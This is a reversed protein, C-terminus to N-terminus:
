ALPEGDKHLNIEDSSVRIPRVSRGHPDIGGVTEWATPTVLQRRKGESIFYVKGSSVDHLLSGNRFLLKGKIPFNLCAAESSRVIRPPAWSDVVAKTVCRLRSNSSNIYYYGSETEIFLGSPYGVPSDPRPTKTQFLM